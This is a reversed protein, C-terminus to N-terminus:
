LFVGIALGIAILIIDFAVAEKELPLTLPACAIDEQEIGSIPNASGVAVACRTDSLQEHSTIASWSRPGANITPRRVGVSPRFGLQQLSASYFGSDSVFSEEASVLNRLDSKMATVYAGHKFLAGNALVTCGPMLVALALLSHRGTIWLAQARPRMGAPMLRRMVLWGALTLPLAYIFLQPPVHGGGWDLVRTAGVDWILRAIGFAAIAGGLGRATVARM